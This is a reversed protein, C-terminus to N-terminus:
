TPLPTVPLDSELTTGNDTTRIRQGDTAPHSVQLKRLFRSGCSGARHEDEASDAAWGPPQVSCDWYHHSGLATRAFRWASMLVDGNRSSGAWGQAWRPSSPTDLPVGLLVQRKKQLYHFSFHQQCLPYAAGVSGTPSCHKVDASSKIKHKFYVTLSFSFQM